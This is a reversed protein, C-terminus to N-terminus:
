PVQCRGVDDDCFNMANNDDDTLDFDTCSKAFAEWSPNHLPLECSHLPSLGYETKLLSDQSLKFLLVALDTMATIMLIIMMLYVIMVTMVMQLGALM